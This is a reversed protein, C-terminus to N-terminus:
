RGSRKRVILHGTRVFFSKLLNPYGIVECGHARFWLIAAHPDISNCADSDPDWFKEYNAKLKKFDLREMKGGSLIFRISRWFRRPFVFLSRFIVSKRWLLSFKVLKGLLGLDGYPRVVYGGAAWPRVQWAPKFLFVGGPKLVRLSERLANDIDPIHEFVSVSFIADFVDDEFPYKSGEAIAFFPKHYFRKLGEAIDLGTYDPVTDQFQGAASGVDLVKKDRLGFDGIFKKLEPYFAHEEPRSAPDTVKPHYEREYFERREM